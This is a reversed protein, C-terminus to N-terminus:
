QLTTVKHGPVPETPITAVDPTHMGAGGDAGAMASAALDFVSGWPISEDATVFWVGSDCPAALKRVADTGLTIDPGAFGRTFRKATTGGLTWVSVSSDKGIDAVVSCDSAGKPFSFVVVADKNDRTTTHVEAKANVRSLGSFAAYVMSLKAHRDADVEATATAIAPAGSVANAALAAFSPDSALVRQQGVIVADTTVFIRPPKAPAATSAVPAAPPAGAEIPAEADKKGNDCGVAALAAAAGFFFALSNAMM